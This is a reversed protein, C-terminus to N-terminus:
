AVSPSPQQSVSIPGVQFTSLTGQVLQFGPEGMPDRALWRAMNPEYPRALYMVAHAQTSCILAAAAFFTIRLMKMIDEVTREKVPNRVYNDFLFFLFILVLFLWSILVSSGWLQGFCAFVLPYIRGLPM